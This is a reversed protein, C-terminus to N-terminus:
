GWLVGRGRGVGCVCVDRSELVVESWRQGGEGAGLVFGRGLDFSSVRRIAHLDESFIREGDEEQPGRAQGGVGGPRSIKEGEEGVEGQAGGEKNKRREIPAKQGWEM